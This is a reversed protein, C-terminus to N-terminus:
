IANLETAFRAYNLPKNIYRCVGLKELEKKKNIDDYGTIVIIKTYDSLNYKEVLLKILDEGTIIPMSLDVILYDFYGSGVSSIRSIVDRSDNYVETSFGRNILFKELIESHVKEDDCILVNKSSM